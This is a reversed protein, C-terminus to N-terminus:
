SKDISKSVLLKYWEGCKRLLKEDQTGEIIYIQAPTTQRVWFLALPNTCIIYLEMSNHDPDPLFKLYKPITIKKTHGYSLPKLFGRYRPAPGGVSSQLFVCSHLYLSKDAFPKM